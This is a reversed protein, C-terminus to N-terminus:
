SQISEVKIFNTEVKLLRVFDYVWKLDNELGVQTLQNIRLDETM